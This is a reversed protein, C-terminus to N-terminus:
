HLESNKPPTKDRPTRLSTVLTASCSVATLCLISLYVLGWVPHESLFEWM